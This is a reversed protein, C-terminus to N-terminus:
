RPVETILKKAALDDLFEGVVGDHVATAAARPPHDDKNGPKFTLEAGDPLLRAPLHTLVPLYGEDLHAIHVLLPAARRHDKATQDDALRVTVAEGHEGFPLPLGFGARDPFGQRRRTGRPAAWSYDRHALARGGLSRGDNPYGYRRRFAILWAGATTLAGDWSPLADRALYVRSAPTLHTWAAEGTTGSRGMGLIREVVDELEQRTRVVLSGPEGGTSLSTGEVRICHLSGYGNRAKSGVGGLVLWAELSREFLRRSETPLREWRRTPWSLVLRVTEGPRLCPRELKHLGVCGYGLYQLPSTGIETGHRNTLLAGSPKRLQLRDVTGKNSPDSPDLGWVETLDAGTLRSGAKFESGAEQQPPQGLTRVRLLSAQKTSGFLAAEARRVRKLDGDFAGGAVARFWWRLQGRVSAARWEATSTQDAGGLFCPTVIELHLTTREM